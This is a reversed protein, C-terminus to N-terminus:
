FCLFSFGFQKEKSYELAPAPIKIFNLANFVVKLVKSKTPIRTFDIDPSLYFQRYRKYYPIPTGNYSYSNEFAGTMGEAGYGFAVNLWKPFRNENKLFSSINASLWYTQGNYDKLMNENLSSGLLDPRYKSYKTQHFSWKLNIRQEHWALQQSMFLASGFTNACLDGPSAGWEASFADLIEITTLYAFGISGGYWISKKESVGCWKLTKYGYLGLTASTAAHGLKDM